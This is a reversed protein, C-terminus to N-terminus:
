ACLHAILKHFEMSSDKLVKAFELSKTKIKDDLISYRDKLLKPDQGEILANSNILSKLYEVLEKLNDDDSYDIKLRKSLCEISKSIGDIQILMQEKLEENTEFIKNLEDIEKKFITLLNEYDNENNNQIPHLRKLKEIQGQMELISLLIEIKLMEIADVRLGEFFSIIDRLLNSETLNIKKYYNLSALIREPSIKLFSELMLEPIPRQGWYNIYKEKDWGVVEYAKVKHSDSIHVEGLYRSKIYEGAKKVTEEGAAIWTDFLKNAPELEEAIKVTEGMVTYQVRKQSGMNGAYVLGSNIGMRATIKVGYKILIMLQIIKIEEQQLLASYCAKFHHNDDSLPAGFVAKIADGEYKDVYGDFSMIINSMASLYVNLIKALEQATVGESITTFGSVDSSFVTADKIEGTLAISDRRKVMINLVEPSVMTSFIKKVKKREKYEDYYRLFVATSYSIFLAFLPSSIPILIGHKTFSYWGTLCHILAISSTILLGIYPKYKFATLIILLIYIAFLPYVTWLPIERIFVGTIVTNVVQPVLDLMPHRDMFPTPNQSTLGTATLGYFINKGTLFTPNIKYEKGEILLTKSPEFYLPRIEEINLSQKLYFGMQEYSDKLVSIEEATLPSKYAKTIEDFATLNKSFMYKKIGLNNIYIQRSLTLIDKNNSDIGLAPLIEEPLIDTNAFYYDMLFALFIITAKATAIDKKLLSKSIAENILNEHIVMPNSLQALNIGRLSDKLLDIVIYNALLNFPIHVFSSAYIGSWNVIMNGRDNVPISITKEKSLLLVSDRKFEVKSSNTIAKVSKLAISPILRDKYQVFLPYSRIVGDTDPSIANVGIGGSLKQIEKSPPVITNVLPFSPRVDNYPISEKNLFEEIDRNNPNNSDGKHLTTFASFYVYEKMQELQQFFREPSKKTMVENIAKKNGSKILKKLVEEEDDSLSIDSKQPFDLDIVFLNKIKHRHLHEFLLRHVSWDWPWRGITEIAPDDIDITIIDKNVTISPRNLFGYDYIRNEVSRFLGIAFSISVFLWLLIAIYPLYRKM